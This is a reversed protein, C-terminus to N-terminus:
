KKPNSDVLPQLAENQSLDTKLTPDLELAIKLYSIASDKRGKLMHLYARNYWASGFKPNFQAAQNFAELAKDYNHLELLASGRSNWAIAANSSDPDMRIIVESNEIIKEYQRLALLPVARANRLNVDDPAKEIAFNLTNLAEQFQELQMLQYARGELLLMEFTPTNDTGKAKVPNDAGISLLRDYEAIADVSRGAFGLAQAKLLAANHNDPNIALVHSYSESAEGFRKLRYLVDAKSHWSAADSSDIRVMHTYAKLAEEYSEKSEFRSGKQHWYERNNYNLYPWSFISGFVVVGVVSTWICVRKLYNM